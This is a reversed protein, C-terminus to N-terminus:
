GNESGTWRKEDRLPKDNLTYVFVFIFLYTIHAMFFFAEFLFLTIFMMEDYGLITVITGIGFFFTGLMSLLWYMATANSGLGKFRAMLVYTEYFFIGCFAVFQFFFLGNYLSSM